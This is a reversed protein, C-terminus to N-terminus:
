KPALQIAEEVSALWSKLNYKDIFDLMPKPDEGEAISELCGNFFETGYVSWLGFYEVVAAVTPLQDLMSEPEMDIWSVVRRMFEAATETDHRGLERTHKSM